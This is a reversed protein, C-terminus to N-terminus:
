LFLFQNEYQKLTTNLINSLSFDFTHEEYTYTHTSDPDSSCTVIIENNNNSFICNIFFLEMPTIALTALLKNNLNWIKVGYNGSATAILQSDASFCVSRSRHELSTIEEGNM